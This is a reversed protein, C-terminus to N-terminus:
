GGAPVGITSGAPTTPVQADGARPLRSSPDGRARGEEWTADVDKFYNRIGAYGRYPSAERQAMLSLFEVEPHCLELTLELDRDTIADASARVLSM